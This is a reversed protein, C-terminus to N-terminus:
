PKIGVALRTGRISFVKLQGASEDAVRSVDDMMGYDHWFVLGGSKLVGIANETDKKVYDYFHNGDVIVADFPGPLTSWDLSASDGFVQTIKKSYSTNEKFQKGTIERPTVNDYLGPVKIGYNNNFDPPLDMTIIKGDEPINAAINITTNGDFTGIELISGAKKFKLISCLCAVEYMDMSTSPDREFANLIQFSTKEIGPFIEPLSQRKLTGYSWSGIRYAEPDKPKIGFPFVRRWLINIAALPNGMAKGLGKLILTNRSQYGM